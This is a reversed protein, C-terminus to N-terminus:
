SILLFVLITVWLTGFLGVIGWGAAGMNSDLGQALRAIALLMPIGVLAILVAVFLTGM